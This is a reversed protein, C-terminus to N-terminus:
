QKPAAPAQVPMVRILKAEVQGQNNPRGIVVVQDDVKLDAIKINQFDKIIQTQGTVAITKEVNAQSKVVINNGEIKIIQGLGSHGNFNPGGWDGMMGRRGSGMINRYYNEGWDRGFREKEHGVLIGAGFVFVLVLIAALIILSKNFHDAKFFNKLCM